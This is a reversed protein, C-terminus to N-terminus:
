IKDNIQELEKLIARALVENYDVIESMGSPEREMTVDPYAIGFGLRTGIINTVSLILDLTKTTEYARDILGIPEICKDKPTIPEIKKSALKEEMDYRRGDM